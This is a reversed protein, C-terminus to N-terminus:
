ERRWVQLGEITTERQFGYEGLMREYLPYENLDFSETIITQANSFMEELQTDNLNMPFGYGYKERLVPQYKCLYNLRQHYYSLLLVESGEPVEEMLKQAQAYQETRQNLSQSFSHYVARLMRGGFLLLNVVLAIRIWKQYEGRYKLMYACLLVGFPIILLLYHEYQQFFLPLTMCGCLLLLWIKEGGVKLGISPKQKSLTLPFTLIMPISIGVFLLLSGFMQGLDRTGYGGSTFWIQLIEGPPM